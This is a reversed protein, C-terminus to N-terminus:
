YMVTFKILETIKLSIINLLIRNKLYINSTGNISDFLYIEYVTNVLSKMYSAYIKICDYM